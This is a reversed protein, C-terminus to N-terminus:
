DTRLMDALEAESLVVDPERSQFTVKHV